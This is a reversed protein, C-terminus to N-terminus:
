RKLAMMLGDGLPLLSCEVREDAHIKANLNRLAVTDDDTISDDAVKGSWLANDVAILGGPRLLQLGMEYYMGYNPKDADIFCFDFTGAQGDDLLKQLTETAPALHLAIKDSVGAKAWYRRAVSTFEESVDCCIVQGDPPLAEAICLASYGTFTGVELVKKVGLARMLLGMFQGQEASIQMRGSPMAETEARLQRKVEDLRTGVKLLYAHVTDDISITRVSM